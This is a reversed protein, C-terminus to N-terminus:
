LQGPVLFGTEKEALPGWAKQEETEIVLNHLYGSRMLVAISLVVLSPAKGPTASVETEHVASNVASQLRSSRHLQFGWVEISFAVTDTKLARVWDARQKSRERRPLAAQPDSGPGGSAAHRGQTKTRM